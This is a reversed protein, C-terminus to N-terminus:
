SGKDSESGLFAPAQDEMPPATVGSPAIALHRIPTAATTPALAPAIEYLPLAGDAPNLCALKATRSSNSCSRTMSRLCCSSPRWDESAPICLPSGVGDAKWSASPGAGTEPGGAMTFDAALLDAAIEEKCDDEVTLGEAPGGDVFGAMGSDEVVVVVEGGGGVVVVEGGGVVVVVEGGGGVVVV